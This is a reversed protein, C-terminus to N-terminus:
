GPASESFRSVGLVLYNYPVLKKHDDARVVQGLSGKYVWEAWDWVAEDAQPIQVVVYSGERLRARTPVATDFDLGMFFDQVEVNRHRGAISKTVATALGTLPAIAPQLATALKLGGRFVDSELFKMFKEDDDNAVNVTSGKLDVGQSGVNLGVFIPYGILGAEQGEQVRCTMNFHLQEEQGQAQNKAAFDFLVRHTGGGPYAAVRLRDLTIKIRGNRLTADPQIDGAHRIPLVAAGGAAIHGFAHTTDTYLRRRRRFTPFLGESPEAGLPSTEEEVAEEYGKGRLKTVAEAEPMDGLARLRDPGTAETM